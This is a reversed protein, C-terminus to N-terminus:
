GRPGAHLHRQRAIRPLNQVADAIVAALRCPRADEPRGCAETRAEANEREIQFAKARWGPPYWITSTAAEIAPVSLGCEQHVDRRGVSPAQRNARKLAVRRDGGVPLEGCASSRSNVRKACNQSPRATDPFRSFDSERRGAPRRKASGIPRWQRLNAPPRTVSIRAGTATASIEFANLPSLLLVSAAISSPGSRRASLNTTRLGSYSVTLGLGDDTADLLGHELLRLRRHWSHDQGDGISPVPAGNDGAHHEADAVVGLQTRALGAGRCLEAALILHPQRHGGTTALRDAQVKVAVNRGVADVPERQTKRNGERREVEAALLQVDKVDSGLHRPHRPRLPESRDHDASRADGIGPIELASRTLGQRCPQAGAVRPMTAVQLADCVVRTGRHVRPQLRDGLLGGPDVSAFPLSASWWLTEGPVKDESMSGVSRRFSM